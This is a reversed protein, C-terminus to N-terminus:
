HYVCQGIFASRDLKWSFGSGGGLDDFQKAYWGSHIQGSAPVDAELEEFSGNIAVIVDNRSGWSQGWFNIAQDYRASQSSVTERGSVLKGQGISTELTLNPNSRDRRTVFVRNPDPLTFEQYELGDAVVQWQAFARAPFGLFIFVSLFVSSFLMAQKM